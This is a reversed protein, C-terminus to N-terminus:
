TTLLNVSNEGVMNLNIVVPSIFLCEHPASPQFLAKWIESRACRPFSGNRLSTHPDSTLIAILRTFSDHSYLSLEATESRSKKKQSSPSTLKLHKCCPIARDNSNSNAARPLGQM